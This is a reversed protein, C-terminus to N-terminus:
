YNNYKEVAAAFEADGHFYHGQGWFHDTKGKEAVVYKVRWPTGPAEAVGLIRESRDGTDKRAVIDFGNIKNGM